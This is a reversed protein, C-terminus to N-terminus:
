AAVDATSRSKRRATIRADNAAREVDAALEFRPQLCEPSAQRVADLVSPVVLRTLEECCSATLTRVLAPRPGALWFRNRKTARHLRALTRIGDAGLYSVGTLGVVLAESKEAVRLAAHELQALRSGTMMGSASLITVPGISEVAMRLTQGSRPKLVSVALQVSFYRTMFLADKLYRPALRRPEQWLRYCWELCARQMWVPARGMKGSIFDLAGGIGVCVPVKLRHRNRDIWIEQKPSGLAVLLIDPNAKEIADLIEEDATADLTGVPPSLRGVICAGMDGMHLAAAACVEPQAGLLFIGYGKRHSLAALRPVLDSGTVRELLAHGLLRSALVLPM